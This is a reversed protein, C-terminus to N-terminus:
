LAEYTCITTHVQSVYRQKIVGYNREILSRTKKHAVNYEEQPGSAPNRYPTLLYHRLPYASDGLIVGNNGGEMITKLSSTEFVRADNVRGPWRVSANYILM